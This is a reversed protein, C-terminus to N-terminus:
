ILEGSTFTPPKLKIFRELADHFEYLFAQILSDILEKQHKCPTGLMKSRLLSYYQCFLEAEEANLSLIPIKEIFMKLDWSEGAILLLQKMYESSLCICRCEFDISIMSNELIINPHCIFLDNVHIMRSEGNIYLSGKGKVCLLIIYAEVKVAQEINLSQLEDIIAIRSDNYVSIKKVLVDDL